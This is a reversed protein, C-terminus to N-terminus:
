LRGEEQARIIIEVARALMLESDSDAIDRESEDQTRSRFREWLHREDVDIGAFCDEWVSFYSEGFLDPMDVGDPANGMGAGPLLLSALNVEFVKCFAWLESISFRRVSQGPNRGDEWQSIAAGTLEGGIYPALNEAVQRQSWGRFRRLVRLNGAVVRGIPDDRRERPSIM